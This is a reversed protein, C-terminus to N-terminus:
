SRSKSHLAADSAQEALADAFRQVSAANLERDMVAFRQEPLAHGDVVLVASLRSRPLVKVQASYRVSPVRATIARDMIACLGAAGGVSAPLHEEGTITCHGVTVANPPRM